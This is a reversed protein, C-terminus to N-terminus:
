LCMVRLCFEDVLFGVFIWSFIKMWESKNNIINNIINIKRLCFFWVFDFFCFFFVMWIGFLLVYGGWYYVRSMVSWCLKIVFLLLGGLLLVRNLNCFRFFVCFCFVCCYGDVFSWIGSGVCRLLVKNVGRGGSSVGWVGLNCVMWRESGFCGGCFKREFM